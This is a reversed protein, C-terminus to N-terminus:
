VVRILDYKGLYQRIVVAEVGDSAWAAQYEEPSGDDLPLSTLWVVIGNVRAAEDLAVESPGARGKWDARNDFDVIYGPYELTAREAVYLRQCDYEMSICKRLRPSGHEAAWTAREALRQAKAAQQAVEAALRNREDAAVVADRRATATAAAALLAPLHPSGAYRRERDYSSLSPLPETGDSHEYVAIRALIDADRQAEFTAQAAQRADRWAALLAAPDTVIQTLALPESGPQRMMTWTPLTLAIQTQLPAGHAALDQRDDPALQAPDLEVAQTPGPDRGTEVFITKRAEDTLRYTLKM